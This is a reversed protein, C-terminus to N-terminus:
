SAVSQTWNLCQSWMSHKLPIWAALVLSLIIITMHLVWTLLLNWQHSHYPETLPFLTTWNAHGAHTFIHSHYPEIPPVTWNTTATHNLQHSCYPEIPPLLITWNTAVTHNLQHCCYPEIPLFLITWITAATHNLLHCCFPEIPPLLITWNTAATHNLQHCCYPEFPPLLLTWNTAATHNLQHCCYPEIPPLLITWHTAATHNLQHCCYPEIPRDSYPSIRSVTDVVHYNALTMSSAPNSGHCPRHGHEDPLFLDVLRTCLQISVDRLRMPRGRVTPFDVILRDEFYRDYSELSEILM